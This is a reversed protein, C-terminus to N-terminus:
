YHKNSYSTLIEVTVIDRHFLNLAIMYMMYAFAHVDKNLVCLWYAILQKENSTQLPLKGVEGYIMCNPTSPRLKLIKEVHGNKSIGWSRLWIITNPM